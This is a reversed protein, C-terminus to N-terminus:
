HATPQSTSVSRDDAAIHSTKLTGYAAVYQSVSQWSCHSKDKTHRLSRRVSQGITLQLTVKEYDTNSLKAKRYTEHSQQTCHKHVPMILKKPCLEQQFNSVQATPPSIGRRRYLSINM